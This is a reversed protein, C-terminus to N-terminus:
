FFSEMSQFKTESRGQRGREKPQGSLEAEMERWESSFSREKRVPSLPPSSSRGEIGVYGPPVIAKVSRASASSRSRQSAQSLSKDM